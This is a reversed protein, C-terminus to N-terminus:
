KVVEGKITLILRQDASTFVRIRKNFAGLNTTKYQITIVGEEGPRIPEKPYEGKVCHCGTSIHVVAVPTNGDNRVKFEHVAVKDKKRITGYDHKNELLTLGEEKKDSLDNTAATYAVPLLLTLLCFVLKKM